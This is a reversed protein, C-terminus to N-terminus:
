KGSVLLNVLAEALPLSTIEEIWAWQGNPNIELFYHEGKPTVIMDIAGFQLDFVELLQRCHNEVDSPLNYESYRLKGSQDKRWDDITLPDEQSYIAVPFIENGIMTIRLEFEKPIYEQFFTPSYKVLARKNIQERTVRNSYILRMGDPYKLRGRRLPKNIINGNCMEYFLLLDDSNNTIITKPTLFGIKSAMKLQYLKNEARRINDPRSVWFCDLYKWIGELFESSEVICFEKAPKDAIDLAPIPLVPRRFWISKIENFEVTGKPHIFFGDFKNGNFQWNLIVNQPYDETNFRWYQAGFQRLKLILFDATYDDRNTVILIKEM